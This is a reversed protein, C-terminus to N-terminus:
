SENTEHLYEKFEQYYIKRFAICVEKEFLDMEEETTEIGDFRDYIITTCTNLDDLGSNEKIAIKKSFAKAIGALLTFSAGQVYAFSGSVTLM